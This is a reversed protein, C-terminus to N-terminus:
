NVKVSAEDKLALYNVEKVNEKPIKVKVKHKFIYDNIYNSLIFHDLHEDVILISFFFTIMILLPSIITATSFGFLVILLTAIPIYYILFPLTCQDLLDCISTLINKILQDNNM